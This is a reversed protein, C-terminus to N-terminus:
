RRALLYMLVGGGLIMWTSASGPLSFFSDRGNVQTVFQDASIKGESQLQKLNALKREFKYVSNIFWIFGGITAAGLVVPIAGLQGAQSRAYDIGDLGFASTFWEWGKDVTGTVGEVARRLADGRRMLADYEPKLQPNKEVQARLSVLRNYATAFEQAKAKFRDLLGPDSLSSDPRNPEM